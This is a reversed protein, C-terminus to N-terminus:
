NKSIEILNTENYAKCLEKISDFIEFVKLWCKTTLTEDCLHFALDEIKNLVIQCYYLIKIINNYYTWQESKRNIVVNVFM